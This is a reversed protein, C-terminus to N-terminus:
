HVGAQSHKAHKIEFKSPIKLPFRKNKKSTSTKKKIKIIIKTIKQYDRKKKQQIIKNIIFNRKCFSFSNVNCVFIICGFCYFLFRLFKCKSLIITIIQM